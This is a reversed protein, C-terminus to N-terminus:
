VARASPSAGAPAGRSAHAIDGSSRLAAMTRSRAAAFDGFDGFSGVGCDACFRTTLEEAIQLRAELGDGASLVPLVYELLYDNAITFEIIKEEDVSCAVKQILM